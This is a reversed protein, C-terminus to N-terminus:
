ELNNLQQNLLYKIFASQNDFGQKKMQYQIKDVMEQSTRFAVTKELIDKKM